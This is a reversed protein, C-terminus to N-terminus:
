YNGKKKSLANKTEFHRVKDSLAKVIKLYHQNFDTEEKDFWTQTKSRMLLIVNIESKGFLNSYTGLNKNKFM